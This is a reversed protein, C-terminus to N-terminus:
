SSVSKPYMKNNLLKRLKGRQTKSMLLLIRALEEGEVDKREQAWEICGNVFYDELNGDSLVVHLSGWEPNEKYYDFFRDFVDSINPKVIEGM